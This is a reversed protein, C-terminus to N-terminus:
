VELPLMWGGEVSSAETESSGGEGSSERVVEEDDSRPTPGM